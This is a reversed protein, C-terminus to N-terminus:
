FMKKCTYKKNQFIFILANAAINKVNFIITAANEWHKRVLSPLLLLKETPPDLHLTKSHWCGIIYIISTINPM